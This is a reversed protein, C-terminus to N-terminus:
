KAIDSLPDFTGNGWGITNLLTPNNSQVGSKFGMFYCQPQYKPYQKNITKDEVLYGDGLREQCELYKDYFETALNNLNEHMNAKDKDSLDVAFESRWKKFEEWKSGNEPVTVTGDGLVQKAIPDPTEDWKNWSTGGTGDGLKVRFVINERRTKGDFLPKVGLYNCTNNGWMGGLTWHAPAGSVEAFNAGGDFLLWRRMDDFRKGEFALEIQREYLIAAFVTAQDTSLSELGTADSEYGAHERIQKLFDVAVEPHGAGCAIEALNLLVEAYRLEIFSAYSLQFTSTGAATPITYAGNDATAAARKSVYVGKANKFLADAGYTQGTETVEKEYWVYNWLEYDPGEYPISTEQKKNTKYPWKMGPFAFTRYFRPDRNLFPHKDDYKSSSNLLSSGKGAPVTGDAMPFLDIIMKSPNMGGSGEANSPRIMREWNNNRQYDPTQNPVINNHRAFFIADKNGGITNFMDAWGDANTYSFDYKCDRIVQLANEDEFLAKYAEKYREADGNRNFLPSCWWAMVRTKLALATGTTVRGYNDADNIWEGKGTAAKLMAAANDLDQIIFEYVAKSTARPEVSSADVAQAKKIIPVGGYWKWLMFYRWARLFYLQGLAIDKQAQSLSGGEVGEIANNINRILGWVNARVNGRDTGQFFDPTKDHTTTFEVTPDVFSDSFGSYEETSKAMMDDNAGTSPYQWNGSGAGNPLCLAYVDSLRGLVGNWDNYAEPSVSDYNKVDELFDQCSAFGLLAAAAIGFIKFYKTKM